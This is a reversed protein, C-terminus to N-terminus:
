RNGVADTMGSAFSMLHGGRNAGVQSIPRPGDYLEESREAREAEIQEPKKPREVLM